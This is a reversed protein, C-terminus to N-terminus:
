EKPAVGMGKREFDAATAQNLKGSKDTKELRPAAKAKRTKMRM